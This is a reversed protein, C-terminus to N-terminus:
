SQRDQILQTLQALTDFTEKNLESDDIRVGFQEEVYLSLDVLHFSDILGSSILPADATIVKKSQLLIKSAIYQALNTTIDTTM